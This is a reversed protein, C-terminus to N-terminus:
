VMVNVPVDPESVAVAVACNVTLYLFCTASARPRRRVAALMQSWIENRHQMRMRKARSIALLTGGKKPLRTRRSGHYDFGLRLSQWGRFSRIAFTPPIAYLVNFRRCLNRVSSSPWRSTAALLCGIRVIMRRAVIVPNRIPSIRANRHPRM